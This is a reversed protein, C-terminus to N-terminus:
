PRRTSGSRSSVARPSAGRHVRQAREALRVESTTIGILPVDSMGPEM